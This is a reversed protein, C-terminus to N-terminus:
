QVGGTQQKLKNLADYARTTKRALVGAPDNVTELTRNGMADLTYAITNGLSDAINTLRHAGDYTYSIMSNDPMSVQTLQGVSDHTYTTMEGGVTRSALWGRPTYTVDTVLGNPDSIRGVRGNLDYNSLTTVHGAANTSSTLNGKEDYTYITVDNVDTRPGKVTLVQGLPSYTYTWVRASGVLTATFGAAGTADSTAQISKTLVNGTADYTYVTLREPEAIKLPLRLTAHWSTSTTRANSTGVAEVKTLELNRALDYTFTTKIGVFDTSSAVNGNADYTLSKSASGVGGPGPQSISTNKTLGLYNGFNYTRTTGLPDTVYAQRYSYPYSFTYKEIGVAHESSAVMGDVNYKYTAFRFENEDIIGTLAFPFPHGAVINGAENYLYKRTKGDPYTVSALKKGGDYSYLYVQGAPDTMTNLLGRSDYTFSLQSGFADTVSLLLGAAPAVLPPTQLDSYAFVTKQGNTNTSDRLLGEADYTEVAGTEGNVVQWGPLSGEIAVPAIRDNADAPPLLANASNFYIIRGGPRRIAVDDSAAPAAYAYCFTGGIAGIGLYCASGQNAFVSLGRMSSVSAHYSFEWRNTDSRYVRTFRLTGLANTYDTEVQQKAGTALLVPNGIKPNPVPDNGLGDAVTPVVIKPCGCSPDIDPAPMAQGAEEKFCLSPSDRVNFESFGAPCEFSIASGIGVEYVDAKPPDVSTDMVTYTKTGEWWWGSISANFYEKVYRGSCNLAGGGVPCTAVAYKQAAEGASEVYVQATGALYYKKGLVYTTAHAYASWQLLFLLLFILQIAFLGKSGFRNLLKAGLPHVPYKQM